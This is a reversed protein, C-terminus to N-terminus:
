AIRDNPACIEIPFRGHSGFIASGPLPNSSKAKQCKPSTVRSLYIGFRLNHWTDGRILHLAAAEPNPPCLNLPSLSNYCTGSLDLVWSPM